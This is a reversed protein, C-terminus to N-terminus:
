EKDWENWDIKKKIEEKISDKQDKIEAIIKFFEEILKSPKEKINEVEPPEKVGYIVLDGHETPLRELEAYMENYNGTNLYDLIKKLTDEVGGLAEPEYNEKKIDDILKLAREVSEKLKQLKNEGSPEEPQFPFPNEISM